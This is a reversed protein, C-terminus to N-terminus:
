HLFHTNKKEQVFESKLLFTSKEKEIFNMKNNTKEILLVYKEFEININNTTKSKYERLGKLLEEKFSILDQFSIPNMKSKPNPLNNTSNVFKKNEESM